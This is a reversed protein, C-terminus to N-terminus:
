ETSVPYPRVLSLLSTDWSLGRGGVVVTQSLCFVPGSPTVVAVDVTVVGRDTDFGSLNTRTHTHGPVEDCSGSTEGQEKGRSEIYVRVDPGVPPGDRGSVRTEVGETGRRDSGM